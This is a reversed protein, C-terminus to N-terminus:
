KKRESLQAIRAELDKLEERLAESERKLFELESERTIRPVFPRFGYAGYYRPAYPTWRPLGYARMAAGIGWPSCFGRGGGTMPGMGMPGTGDFGPM